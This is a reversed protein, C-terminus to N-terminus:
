MLFAVDINMAYRCTEREGGGGKLVRKMGLQVAQEVLQLKYETM